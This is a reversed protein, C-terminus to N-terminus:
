SNSDDSLLTKYLGSMLSFFDIQEDKKDPHRKDIVIIRFLDEVIKPNDRWIRVMCKAFNNESNSISYFVNDFIYETQQKKRNNSNVIMTELFGMQYFLWGTAIWCIYDIVNLKGKFDLAAINKYAAQINGRSLGIKNILLKKDLPFGGIL